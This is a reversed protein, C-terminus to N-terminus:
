SQRNLLRLQALTDELHSQTIQAPLMADPQLHQPLSALYTSEKPTVFIAVPVNPSTRKVAQAVDFGSTPRLSSDTIILDFDSEYFRRLGEDGSDATWVGAGLNTLITEVQHQRQQGGCISLVRLRENKDAASELNATAVFLPIRIKFTVGHPSAHSASISGRHMEIIRRCVSLGLGTGFRSTTVYPEFCTKLLEESMGVGTDSIALVADEGDEKLSITITGGDPMADIANLALNVFVQLLETRNGAVVTNTPLDFAFCIGGKGKGNMSWCRARTIDPIQYVLEPLEVAESTGISPGSHYHRKLNALVEVAHEVSADLDSALTQVEAPISDMTHLLEVFGFVPTLANSIDHVVGAAMEGLTTLREREALKQEALELNHVTQTLQHSASRLEADFKGLESEAQQMATIDRQVAVYHTTRGDSDRLHSIVWELEFPTGDRRYNVTRGVFDKGDQLTSRLRKLVNKDTEPGQLIRPTKGLLESVGYGTLRTFATNAYLIQPGPLDLEATTVLVSNEAYAAALELLDHRIFRHKDTM